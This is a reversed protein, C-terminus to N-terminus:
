SKNMVPPDRVLVVRCPADGLVQPVVSGLSFEGFRRKYGLGMVVLDIRKENVEEVIAPGIERAQLIETAATCEQKDAIIAAKDLIEEARRVESEIQADLPLTRRIQIVYLLEISAKSKKALTCATRIAEEDAPAGSVPVLIREHGVPAKQM